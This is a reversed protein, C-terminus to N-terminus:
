AHFTGQHHQHDDYIRGPGVFKIFYEKFITFQRLNHTLYKEFHIRRLSEQLFQPLECFSIQCSGTGGAWAGHWRLLCKSVM